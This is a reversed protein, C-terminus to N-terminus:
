KRIEPLPISLKKFNRFWPLPTASDWLSSNLVEEHSLNLFAEFEKSEADSMDDEIPNDYVIKPHSFQKVPYIILCRVEENGKVYENGFYKLIKTDRAYGSIERIDAIIGSMSYDYRPKYKADMILHEGTHVYDVQTRLRGSIQFKIDDGYKKHLKSYVYLEFLRAMDIWFPPTSHKQETVESISYDYRRLIDKAVQVANSYHKFIKNGSVARVEAVTVNESINEFCALLCNLKVQILQHKNRLTPISLLMQQAFLLAKKLLRNVPIDETYVQFRCYARDERHSIVNRNLHKSTLIHGKVKSQLNEEVTIYDKRIGHEVLREMLSIFHLLLLPSLQNLEEPVEISPENFRIGYCSAFYNVEAKSDVELATVFMEMYDVGQMKPLVVAYYEGPILWDAGIYYSAVLEKDIGLHTPAKMYDPNGVMENTLREIDQESISSINETRYTSHEEFVLRM